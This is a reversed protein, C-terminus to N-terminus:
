RRATPTLKRRTALFGAGLALSALVTPWMPDFGTAALPEKAATTEYVVPAVWPVDVFLSQAGHTSGGLRMEAVTQVNALDDISGTMLNNWNQLWINGDSDFAFRQGNAFPLDGVLTFTRTDLDLTYMKNTNFSSVYLKGDAPNTACGGLGGIGNTYGGLVDVSGNEKDVTSVQAVGLAYLTGDNGFCVIQLDDWETDGQYNFGPGKSVTGTAGDVTGLGYDYTIDSTDFDTWLITWYVGTTPDQVVSSGCSWTNAGAWGTGVRTMSADTPSVEYVQFDPDTGACNLNYIHDTSPLVGVAANAASLSGFTAIVALALSATLRNVSAGKSLTSFM